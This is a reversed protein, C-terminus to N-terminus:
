KKTSYLSSHFYVYLLFTRKNAKYAHPKNPTGSSNDKTRQASDTPDSIRKLNFFLPFFNQVCLASCGNLFPIIALLRANPLYRFSSIYNTTLTPSDLFHGSHSLSPLTTQTECSLLVIPTCHLLLWWSGLLGSDLNPALTTREVLVLFFMTKRVAATPQHSQTPKLKKRRSLTHFESVM